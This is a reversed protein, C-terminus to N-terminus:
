QYMPPRQHGCQLEEGDCFVSIYDMGNSPYIQLGNGNDELEFHASEATADASLVFTQGPLMWYDAGEPEISLARAVKSRNTVSLIRKM